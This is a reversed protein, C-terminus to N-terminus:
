ASLDYSLAGVWRHAWGRSTPPGGGMSALPEDINEPPDETSWAGDVLHQHEVLVRPYAVPIQVGRPMPDGVDESLGDEPWRLVIREKPPGMMVSEFGGISPDEASGLVVIDRLGDLSLALALM